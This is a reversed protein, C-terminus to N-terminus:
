DGDMKVADIAKIRAQAAMFHFAQLLLHPLLRCHFAMEGFMRPKAALSTSLRVKHQVM